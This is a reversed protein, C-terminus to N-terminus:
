AFKRFSCSYAIPNFAIEIEGRLVRLIRIVFKKVKTSKADKTTFLIKEVNTAARGRQTRRPSDRRRQM